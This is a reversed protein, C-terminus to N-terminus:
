ADPNPFIRLQPGYQRVIRKSSPLVSLIDYDRIGLRGLVIGKIQMKEIVAGRLSSSAIQMFRGLRKANEVSVIVLMGNPSPINCMFTCENERKGYETSLRSIWKAKSGNFKERNTVKISLLASLRNKPKTEFYTVRKLIQTMVLREYAYTMQSAEKRWKEGIMSFAARGGENLGILLSKYSDFIDFQELLSKSAPFYGFSMWVRNVHTVVNYRKLKGQMEEAFALAKEYSRAVAYIFVDYNGNLRCIFQPIYSAGVAKLIEDDSPKKGTYKLLVVYEGFGVEHPEELAEALIGRKTRLRADKLFEFKGIREIDIEPVFMLGYEKSLETLMDHAQHTAVGMRRALEQISIRADASILRLLKRKM